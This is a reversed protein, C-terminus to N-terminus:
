ILEMLKIKDAELKEIREYSKELLAMCTVYLVMTHSLAKLSDGDHQKHVAACVHGIDNASDKKKRIEETIEKLDNAIRIQLPSPKPESM